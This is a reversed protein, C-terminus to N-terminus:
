RLLLCRLDQVYAFLLRQQKKSFKNAKYTFCAIHKLTEM